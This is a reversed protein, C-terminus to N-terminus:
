SWNPPMDLLPRNLIMGAFGAIAGVILATILAPSAAEAPVFALDKTLQVAAVGIFSGSLIAFVGGRPGGADGRKDTSAHKTRYFARSIFYGPLGAALAAILCTVIISTM